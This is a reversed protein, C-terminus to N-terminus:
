PLQLGTPWRQRIPHRPITDGQHAFIGARGERHGDLGRGFGFGDEPGTKVAEVTLLEDDASEIRLMVQDPDIDDGDAGEREGDDMRAFDQFRENQHIGGGPETGMIMRGSVDHRAPFIKRQRRPQSFAGLQQPDPEEVMEDEPLAIVAEGILAPGTASAPPDIRTEDLGPDVTVGVGGSLGHARGRHGGSGM